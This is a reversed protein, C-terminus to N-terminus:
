LVMFWIIIKFEVLTLFNYVLFIKNGCNDRIPEFSMLRSNKWNDYFVRHEFGKLELFEAVERSFLFIADM